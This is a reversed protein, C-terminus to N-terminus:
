GGGIQLWPEHFLSSDALLQKLEDVTDYEVFVSAKVEMGFTHYPLLSHNEYKRIM